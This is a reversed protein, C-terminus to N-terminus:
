AGLNQKSPDPVLVCNFELFDVLVSTIQQKTYTKITLSLLIQIPQTEIFVILLINAVNHSYAFM